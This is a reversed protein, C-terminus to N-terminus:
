SRPGKNKSEYPWSTMTSSIERIRDPNHDRIAAHLAEAKLQLAELLTMKGCIPCGAETGPDYGCACRRCLACM